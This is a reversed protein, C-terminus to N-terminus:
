PVPKLNNQQYWHTILGVILAVLLSFSILEVLPVYRAFYDFVDLNNILFFFTTAPIITMLFLQLIKKLTIRRFALFIGFLVGLFLILYAEELDTDHYGLNFLVVMYLFHCFIFGIIPLFSSLSLLIGLMPLAFIGITSLSFLVRLGNHSTLKNYNRSCNQIFFIRNEIDEWNARKRPPRDHIGDYYTYKLDEVGYKKGLKEVEEDKIFLLDTNKYLDFVGMDAVMEEMEVLNGVKYGVSKNFVWLNILISLCGLWYLFVTFLTAKLSTAKLPFRSLKYGWFLVFFGAFLVTIVVLFDLSNSTPLQNVTLPYLYPLAFALINGILASFVAIYHIKTRWIVPHNKLLYQNLKQLINM